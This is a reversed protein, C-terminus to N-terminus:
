REPYRLLKNIATKYSIQMKDDMEIPTNSFRELLRVQLKLACSLVESEIILRHSRTRLEESRVRSSMCREHLSNKGQDAM